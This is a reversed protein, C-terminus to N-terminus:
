PHFSENGPLNMDSVKIFPIEGSLRGQEDLHFHEVRGLHGLSSSRHRVPAARPNRDPEGFMKHFLAPLIRAAMDDAENRQRRLVDAQELLEVIM